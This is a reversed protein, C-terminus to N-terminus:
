KGASCQVESVTRNIVDRCPSCLFCLEENSRKNTFGNSLLPQRIDRPRQGAVSRCAMIGEVRFVSTTFGESVDTFKYGAVSDCGLSYFLM